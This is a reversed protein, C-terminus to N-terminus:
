LNERQLPFPVVYDPAKKEYLKNLEIDNLLIASPYILSSLVQNMAMFSSVKETNSVAVVKELRSLTLKPIEAFRVLEEAGTKVDVKYIRSANGAISRIIYAHNYGASKAQKLLTQKMKDRKVGGESKIHITGPATTYLGGGRVGFRSSGTSNPAGLAPISGNLMSKFVGKDILVQEKSPVVGEADIEYAGHLPQGNYTALDSYNVVSFRKDILQSNLRNYLLSAGNTTGVPYRTAILVGAKVLNSTFLGSCAGDEFMVPGKYYDSMVPAKSLAMLGDAFQTVGKKMDEMTPLDNITPCAISYTDYIRCGDDTLAYGMVLLLTINQPMVLEVGETTTKYVTSVSGSLSVASNYINKYGKFIASLERVMSKIKEEDLAVDATPAITRSVPEVRRQDSLMKEEERPPTSQLYADKQSKSQLAYKYMIDTGQWFSRRVNNYDGTGSMPLQAINCAYNVDNNSEYSGVNVSVAAKGEENSVRSNLIAGLSGITSFTRYIDTTYSIFYPRLSGPLLLQQENRELEAKMGRLITESKSNQGFLPCSLLLVSILSIITKM